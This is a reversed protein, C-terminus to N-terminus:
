LSDSPESTRTFVNEPIVKIGPLNDCLIRSLKVKRLQGLQASIFAFRKFLCIACTQNYIGKKWSFHLYIGSKVKWGASHNESENEVTYIFEEWSLLQLFFDNCNLRRMVFNDFHNTREAFVWILRPMWVTEDSDESYAWHTASSHTNCCWLRSHVMPLFEPKQNSFQVLPLLVLPLFFSVM